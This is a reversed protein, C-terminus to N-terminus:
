PSRHSRGQATRKGAAFHVPADLHTGGHEPTCLSYATYFWGGPTEGKALTQLEFRTPSTPWYVTEANFPHSLDVVEWKAPDFVQASAPVAMAMAAAAAALFRFM